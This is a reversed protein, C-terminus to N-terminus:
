FLALDLTCCVCVGVCVCVPVSLSRALPFHSLSVHSQRLRKAHQCINCDVAFSCCGRASVESVDSDYSYSATKTASLLMSCKKIGSSM